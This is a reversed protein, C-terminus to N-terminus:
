KEILHEYDRNLWEIEFGLSLLKNPYYSQPIYEGLSEQDAESDMEFHLTFVQSVESYSVSQVPQSLVDGVQGFRIFTGVAPVCPMEIPKTFYGIEDQGNKVLVHALLSLM